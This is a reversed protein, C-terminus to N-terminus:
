EDLKKYISANSKYEPVIEKMKKVTAMADYTRAIEILEDVQKCVSTYDYERVKAIKIKANSTPLVLEENNLVEEYLKEGPRLGTYVIDIDDRGSLEIMRKALDVIRVPSGMDFVLIEGNNGISAAELVLRCAEPILMFYRIIDPHTVRVPGGKRIQDRFIPIVSGNSGLVNGFRTTIFQCGCHTSKALSQCYIECIRKSCGMVNTPNVAKDSSIMIFKEVDFEIALDALKRTSDLNNLIGEIPNDEMMPVHKYAAAHFIIKPSYQKFLERMRSYRCVNAVITTTGVNPFERAMRVRLDHMPTEAQDVLLLHSPKFTALLTSLESGISGAAGTVMISCGEFNKAIREMDVEIPTRPLLDHMEMNLLTRNTLGYVNNKRNTKLYMEYFVRLIVRWGCMFLMSIVLMLVLDRFRVRLLLADTGVYIRMLMVLALSLVLAAVVKLLDIFSSHRILGKSTKFLLFSAIFLPLYVILAQLLRSWCEFFDLIGNNITHSIVGSFLVIICDVLVVYLRSYNERSFFRNILSTYFM